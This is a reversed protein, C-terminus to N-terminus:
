ANEPNSVSGDGSGGDANGTGSPMGSKMGESGRTDRVSSELVEAIEEPTADEDLRDPLGLQECIANVNKATRPILKVAGVRQIGKSFEDLSIDSIKGYVFEPYVETEMNNWEYIRPILYHNLVNKIENLKSEIVMRVVQLKSESLAFSGGGEQGMILFDAYLATLIEKVYRGIIKNVDYSKTGTISKVEFEFAKNGSEDRFQPLILGSEKGIHINRMANKYYKLAAKDDDSANPTLYQIPLYLVRFGNMDASVGNAETEEFAKKYRWAEYVSNLPSNGQPNDKDPNNRFLLIKDKPILIEYKGNVLNPIEYPKQPSKGTPKQVRQWVGEFDRGSKSYEWGSITDQSRFALKKIGIRGDNYRSKKSKLRRRKVIEVVAFGKPVFSSINRIFELWSHEMDKMISKIFAVDGKLEEEYGVPAKVDWPISSIWTQVYDVAPAITGDRLMKKYTWQCWPWSLEKECEELIQGRVVRLGTFGIERANISPVDTASELEKLEEDEAM